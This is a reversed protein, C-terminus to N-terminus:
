PLWSFIKVVFIELYVTNRVSLTGTQVEEDYAYLTDNIKIVVFLQM